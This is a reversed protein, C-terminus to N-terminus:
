CTDWERLTGNLCLTTYSQALYQILPTLMSSCGFIYLLQDPPKLLQSVAISTMKPIPINGSSLSVTQFKHMITQNISLRSDDLKNQRNRSLFESLPLQRRPNYLGRLVIVQLIVWITCYKYLGLCNHTYM